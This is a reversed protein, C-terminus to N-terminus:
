TRSPPPVPTNPRRSTLCTGGTPWDRISPLTANWASRNLQSVPGPFRRDGAFLLSLRLLLLLLLASKCHFYQYYLPSILYTGIKASLDDLIGDVDVDPIEPLPADPDPSLTPIEPVYQTVNIEEPPAPLVQCSSLQLTVVAFAIGIAAPM